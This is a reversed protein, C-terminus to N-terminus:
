QNQGIQTLIQEVTMHVLLSPDEPEVQQWVHPASSIDLTTVPATRNALCDALKLLSIDDHLSKSVRYGAVDLFGELALKRSQENLDGGARILSRLTRTGDFQPAVLMLSLTEETSAASLLAGFRVGIVHIPGFTTAWACVRQTAEVWDRLNAKEFPLPSDGTGPLDYIVTQVGHSALGAATRSLWLRCRNMEEAFPPVV